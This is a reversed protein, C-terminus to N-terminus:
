KKMDRRGVGTWCEDCDEHQKDCAVEGNGSGCAENLSKSTKVQVM